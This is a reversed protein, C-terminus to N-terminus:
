TADFLYRTSLPFVDDDEDDPLFLRARRQSYTQPTSLPKWTTFLKEYYVTIHYTEHLICTTITCM